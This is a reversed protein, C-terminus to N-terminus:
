QRKVRPTVQSVPAALLNPPGQVRDFVRPGGGEAAQDTSLRFPSAPPFLLDFLELITM